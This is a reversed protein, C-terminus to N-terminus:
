EEGSLMGARAIMHLQFFCKSPKNGSAESTRPDAAAGSADYDVTRPVITASVITSVSRLFGATMGAQALNDRVATHM